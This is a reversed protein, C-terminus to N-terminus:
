ESGGSVGATGLTITVPYTSSCDILLQQCDQLDVLGLYKTTMQYRIELKHLM